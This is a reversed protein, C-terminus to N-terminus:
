KRAATVVSPQVINQGAKNSWANRTYTIVAALEVDSLQKFPAMATGPRGHLVVDIQGEPKGLVVKSGDLAPFAGPVGKGNAQHCAACNGAFVKEGRARLDALQWEKTPDDAKALLEKKKEDVWKRYDADSRVDVVIPMFAHDKGCLEACQGRFVGVKEARFWTDRVFGPIADQKVGLAPLYWAHIVDNATVVIRVKKNVPVVLPNDVEMLYTPNQERRAKADPYNRDEIQDRPTALTSLFSIGEGDGKLYDYGWKWQYGTAKVTLDANSTDKQEVVMRTAPIAMGVIILFPVVTWAIEVATSEHFEAPAHGKSKRHKWVSYFMVGFVAVFIAVCIWLVFWHIWHQDAAIRTAPETLNLQNVKPGGPMDVVAAAISAWGGLAAVALAEAMRKLKM